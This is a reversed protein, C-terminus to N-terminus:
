LPVPDAVHLQRLMRYGRAVLPGRRLEPALRLDSLYGIRERKGDVFAMTTSRCGLGVVRGTTTDVCKVVQTADGQLRCGSFYSPERRFSVAIGGEMVDGAMRARLQLDDAPGALSFEFRSM